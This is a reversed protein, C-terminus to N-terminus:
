GGTVSQWATYGAVLVMVLAFAVQLLRAPLRDAVRKGGLTAVMAAAAFPVVVSADVHADAARSALATASNLAVIVLSTGVALHMPLRLALVLAPVIVFGGGVGFFGTLLGAASAVLLTPVLPLRDAAGATAAVVRAPAAVRLTTTASARGSGPAAPAAPAAGPVGAGDGAGPRRGRAGSIMAVAAVVMLAAFGLLLVDQDVRHNLQSGAWTAPIGVLGFVLGVRWRVRGSRLYSLTGVVATLGVIVLSSTTAEQASQGVVYVLAPVTLIAGGGGLGGLIAGILAGLALILLLEGM